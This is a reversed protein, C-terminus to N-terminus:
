ASWMRLMEVYLPSHPLRLVCRPEYMAARWMCARRTGLRCACGSANGEEHGVAQTRLDCPTKQCVDLESSWERRLPAPYDRLRDCSSVTVHAFGVARLFQYPKTAGKQTRCEIM